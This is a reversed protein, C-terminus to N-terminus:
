CARLDNIETSFITLWVNALQFWIAPQSRRSSPSRAARGTGAGRTATYPRPPAPRAASRTM